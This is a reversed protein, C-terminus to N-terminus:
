FESAFGNVSVIRSRIGHLSTLILFYSNHFKSLDSNMVSFNFSARRGAQESRGEDSIGTRSPGEM